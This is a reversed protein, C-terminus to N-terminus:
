CGKIICALKQVGYWAAGFIKGIVDLTAWWADLRRCASCNDYPPTAPASNGAMIGGIILLVAGVVVVVAVVIAAEM